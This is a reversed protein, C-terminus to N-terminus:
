SHFSLVYVVLLFIYFVYLFPWWNPILWLLSVNTISKAIVVNNMALTSTKQIEFRRMAYLTTSINKKYIKLSINPPSPFNECQLLKKHLNCDVTTM